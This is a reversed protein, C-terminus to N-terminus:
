AYCREFPATIIEFSQSAVHRLRGGLGLREDFLRIITADFRHSWEPDWRLNQMLHIAGDVGTRRALLGLVLSNAQLNRGLSPRSTVLLTADVPLGDVFTEVFDLEAHNVSEYSRKTTHGPLWVRLAYDPHFIQEQSLMRHSSFEDRGPWDVSIYHYAHKHARVFAANPMPAMRYPWDYMNPRHPLLGVCLAEEMTPPAARIAPAAFSLPLATAVAIAGAGTLVDRRTIMTM